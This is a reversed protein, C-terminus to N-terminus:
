KASSPQATQALASPSRSIREVTRGSFELDALLANAERRGAPTADYKGDFLDLTRSLLGAYDPQAALAPAAARSVAPASAPAPGAPAVASRPPPAVSPPDPAASAVPAAEPDDRGPALKTELKAKLEAAWSNYGFAAVSESRVGAVTQLLLQAIYAFAVAERQSIRKQAFLRFVQALARNVGTATTLDSSLADLQLETACQPVGFLEDERRAHFRCLSPHLDARDLRCQRGDSFTFLCRPPLDEIRPLCYPNPNSHAQDTARDTFPDADDRAAAVSSPPPLEHSSFFDPSFPGALPEQVTTM